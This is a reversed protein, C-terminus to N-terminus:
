KTLGARKDWGGLRYYLLLATSCVAWGAPYGMAVFLPTNVIYNTGIFLYIQRFVVFSGVTILMPVKSEGAGRIAGTLINNLCCLLYFPSVYRLFRAGWYVVNEDSNFLSVSASAFIVVPIILVATMSLGLIMSMRIGAKARAPNAAGVNQGVFTTSALSLAQLPLGIFQDLKSYSSYGAMIDSGFINIYSQVFANSFSIIAAQIGAPVGIQLIKAVIERSMRLDRLILRYTEKSRCLVVLVLIASLAEAIITAWAVGAVGMGLVAVFLLDLVTNVLASFILFYLPRRTDGVSRLLGSGMNYIMLGPLGAFYITLYTDSLPYVDAPTKTINLLTPVLLIGLATAVLSSLFTLLMTTHVTDHLGVDDKAGFYHSVVVGAGTSLGMFFGVVANIVNGTTGVAALAEKGVFNGVVVADVTNYLQQFLYGVLLPFSFDLLQKWITGSTMDINKKAM